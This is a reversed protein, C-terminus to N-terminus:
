KSVGRKANRRAIVQRRFLDADLGEAECFAPLTLKSRLFRDVPDPPTYKRKRRPKASLSRNLRTGVRQAAKKIHDEDVHTYAATTELDSHGLLGAVTKLPVKASVAATAFGHRLDHIRLDRLRAKDRIRHWTQNIRIDTLPKEERSFVYACTRPRSALIDRAPTGLWLTRPGAKADPIVARKNEIMDWQLLRGESRRGGTLALFRLLQVVEPEDDEHAAFAAGLRAWEQDSLYQAVFGSKRRRLGKCPNSDSPRYGTLEAHRMMGSLVALARNKTSEPSDMEALWKIVDLRCIEALKLSGLVPSIRRAIDSAHGRQTAPKWQGACDRLYREAFAAVTITEDIEVIGGTWVRILNAAELRAVEVSLADADGLTKKRSKGDIRVQIIWTEVTGRKRLGLGKVETDWIVEESKPSRSPLRKLNTTAM